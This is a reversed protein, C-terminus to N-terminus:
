SQKEMWEYAATAPAYVQQEMGSSGSRTIGPLAVIWGERALESVRKWPGRMQPYHRSIEDNTRGSRGGSLIFRLIQGRNSAAQPAIREAAAKSTHPDTGRAGAPRDGDPRGKAGGAIPAHELAELAGRLKDEDHEVLIRKGLVARAVVQVAESEERGMVPQVLEVNAM